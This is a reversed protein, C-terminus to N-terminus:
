ILQMAEDRLDGFKKIILINVEVNMISAAEEESINQTSWVTLNCNGSIDFCILVTKVNLNQLRTSNLTNALYARDYACYVVYSVTCSVLDGSATSSYVESSYVIPSYGDCHDYSAQVDVEVQNRQYPYQEILNPSTTLPNEKNNRAIEKKVDFDVDFDMFDVDFDDQFYTPQFGGTNPFDM